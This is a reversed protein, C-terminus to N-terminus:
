SLFDGLDLYDGLLVYLLALAMLPNGEDESDMFIFILAVLLLDEATFFGLVKKTKPDYLGKPIINEFFSGGKGNKRHADRNHRKPNETQQGSNQGQNEPHSQPPLMKINSRPATEREARYPQGGSPAHQRRVEPMNRGNQGPQMRGAMQGQRNQQPIREGEALEKKNDNQNPTYRQYIEFM